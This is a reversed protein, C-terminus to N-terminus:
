ASYMMAGLCKEVIKSEIIDFSSFAAFQPLKPANRASIEQQLIPSKLGFYGPLIKSPYHSERSSQMFHCWTGDSVDWHSGPSTVQASKPWTVCGIRRGRSGLLAECLLPWWASQAERRNEIQWPMEDCEISGVECHLTRVNILVANVRGGSGMKRLPTKPLYLNTQHHKIFKDSSFQASHQGKSLVLVAHQSASDRHNTTLIESRSNTAPTTNKRSLFTPINGFVATISEDFNM